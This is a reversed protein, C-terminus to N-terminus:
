QSEFAAAEPAQIDLGDADVEATSSLTALFAMLVQHSRASWTQTKAFKQVFSSAAAAGPGSSMMQKLKGIGRDLEDISQVHEEHM